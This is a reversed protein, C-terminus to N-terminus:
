YIVKIEKITGDPKIVQLTYIGHALNYNWQISETSSGNMREIQKRVIVQGLHNILRLDYRGAPLNNLHLNIVGNTIPNPYITISPKGDGILVKVTNSYEIKGDAAVCRIRYYYLGPLPKEDTWTYNSSGSNSAVVSTKSMFSVGDTSREVEYQKMNKENTVQWKVDVNGNNQEAKVSTIAFPLTVAAKFVVYFRGADKSASDTGVSFEYTTVGNMNLTTRSKTYKDILYGQAGNKDLDKAVLEFQYANSSQNTFRYFITDAKEIPRRREVILDKGGSRIYLNEANNFMKRADKGDIKNSYDESYQILNADVPKKSGDAAMRSLTTHLQMVPRSMGRFISNSSGAAKSSENFILNGTGGTTQVVFAQGSQINNNIISLNNVNHYNDDTPDLEYTIWSGYGYNGFTFSQWVTFFEDVNGTKQVKTMDIASAYPNGISTFMDAAAPTSVQYTLLDGKTRMRTNTISTKPLGTSISRDGWVYLMYGSPAYIQDGTSSIGKWDPSTLNFPSSGPVYYKMSPLMSYRDFGGGGPGTIQTGYWPHYQGNEMWSEKISQGTTPIALYEWSQGHQTAGPGVNVYREVTVLGDFNNGTNNTSDSNTLDGVRATGSANSVLTINNGTHLTVGNVNGFSLTGTINLTDNSASIPAVTANNPSSIKLNELRGSSNNYPTNFMRGAITQMARPQTPEYLEMNGNLDITGATADIAMDDDTISGAIHMTNGTIRLKAGPRMKLHNVWGNIGSSLIPWNTVNLIIVSDCTYQTPVENDSWNLANNWDQDKYGHWISKITLKGSGSNVECGGLSNTVQVGFSYGDKTDGAMINDVTLTSTISNDANTTNSVTYDNKYYSASVPQWGSGDDVQWTYNFGTSGPQTTVTFGLAGGEPCEILDSPQLTFNAQPNITVTTNGSQSNVCGKSDQVNVLVYDFTGSTSSPLTISAPDGVITQNAEGNLSYTFTYPGTGTGGTFTIVPSQSDNQCITTGGAVTATPLPNVTLTTSVNTSVPCNRGNSNNGTITIITMQKGNDASTLTVTFTANGSGDSIINDVTVPSGTGITYQITSTTNPLLGTLNMNAADGSCVPAQSITGITPNKNVWVHVDISGNDCGAVNSTLTFVNDGIVQPYATVPIGTPTPVNSGSWTYDIPQSTGPTSLGDIAWVGKGSTGSFNFRIRMNSQGLYNSLNITKSEFNTAANNTLAGTYTELTTYTAGGDTSIEIKAVDGDLLNYAQTFTLTASSQGILSFLPSELSTNYSGYVIAFKSGQNSNYTVGNFTHDQTTEFWYHKKENSSSAALPDTYVVSGNNSVIWNNQGNHQNADSSGKDFKGQEATIGTPPYLVDASLLSSGGECVVPPTATPNTPVIKPIFQLLVPNSPVGTMCVGNTVSARYITTTTIDVVSLSSSNSSTVPPTTVPVWSTGGDTSQQWSVVGTSSAGALKLTASNSVECLMTPNQTNSSQDLTLTGGIPTADVNVEVPNSSSGGCTGTVLVYYYITGEATTPPTYSSTNAGSIANGGSNSSTTNTYWQYSLTGTGTATVTLPSATSNQCYTAGVPNTVISTTPNITITFNKSTGTCGNALPTVTVTTIVPVNTSNTATFAGIDGTGSVGFGVDKSSTWSYTAGSVNSSFSVASGSSGNCYVPNTFTNTITATPNVTVTFNYSSNSCSNASATVTVTATVPVSSANTATFTPINGNGSAGFGVNSSSTWSFTEGSVPGTFSIGSGSAGNCYVVNNLTNSITPTPNVTIKFTKSTGACGNATPTVTITATVPANTSNTATFSSINDTGSTGFGIDTSCTWSYTAGAVDSTFDIAAGTSNNCYTYAVPDAFNNTITATPNVIITFTSSTGPCGNATPTVTVTTTVPASTTNKATFLSINGNGSTGFGVDVISTWSFTAGTVNSTFTVGAATNDGNCYTPNDFSNTIVPTPNVTIKFSNSTGPCSVSNNLYTPIVSINAEVADNGSNTGKFSAINGTGSGALGISANDNSWAYTITGGTQNSQFNIDATNVNNCVTQDDVHNVTAAPNVTITFDRSTGTCTAGGNTYSPTVTITATLPTTGPNKATFSSIDSNGTAALGISTTNNSWNYVTGNVTGSFSIATTTSEACVTQNTIANVDPTPNVIVTATTSNDTNCSGSKVVARFYTTTTIAGITSGPLTTSTVAIDTPSGFAPDSSSQWKVVDGVNNFLTIDGPITGTCIYQDASVTGGVSLPDVSLVGPDSIIQNCGTGEVSVVVDYSGGDGSKPNTIMLTATKTGSTNGGDDIPIGGKRWVYTPNTGNATISFSVSAANDCVEVSAPQTISILQNVTLSAPDSTIADCGTAGSVTVTYSGDDALAAHSITYTASTAGTIPTGGKNWQYTLGTGTAAVTFSADFSACVTADAPQTNISVPQNVVISYNATATESSCTATGTVTMTLTVTKGADAAVATYTPAVTTANSISGGGNSTTWLITGNTATAGSVTATGNSCITTSGGATATPLPDVTVTYDATATATSGCSNNSTVTMTLVIAKGADAAVATYTPAVTTANTISGGGNSTTWLITGNTATAGSVTATGNSCITTSGGATATPLPDVTVTYDATATATSGCSNNSTVTMTLVIAKGADAAVATYTPAVTTANSISGGGNSTTWLITGNTATAGSVTATGNSCITTSGGATATPLPDVTVTYDATAKASSGCSNNSTVTMTLVIAKGADAAVATYTPAVTTANSISGGGNSTTWLITGNTATAGSVTATGNSCITTSGGATATPLPDVTVTYDATATASSGCSNNSTVTMTLVIAKGADAAVATYTPAVTTANSISGGGNSTTWLIMGNTATAGSITATGNSCITTSGGATATPLPDVTVTYDATATASSGCSNNSTVTMTLVIAKGADAAVATYTPAVTTANSISGGGNSTTWLITGNTATAGSVTATGKSCITTSGGATATPLPEVNVTYTATAKASSGCSNNSTVTMLLIVAKGADGAVATYTPTLTTANSISGAGNSTTWLITGNAATAGSVTATGNSCITKSGGASATPLPDVTVIVQDSSIGGSCSGRPNDPTLTLTISGSSITPTYTSSLSNVDSFSGSNSPDSWTATTASGLLTGALQVSSGACINVNNGAEVAAFSNVKIKDSSAGSIGCANSAQVSYNQNQSGSQATGDVTVTISSYNSNGGTISWGVSNNPFNWIYNTSNPDNPVQFTVGTAVPCIGSSSNTTISGPTSPKSSFTTMVIQNSNVQTPAACTANSTMTVTIKSGSPLLNATYTSGTAGSINSGNNKWQYTPTGGNTPTATFTVPTSGSPASTCINTSSASISVSPVQTPNVTITKTVSKTGCSGGSTTLTLTITGSESAGATYTATSPNNANTWTGAGGTWTGGTAGGGVSGGMAASTSGQCIATLAGGATATPNENVTITKTASKTGCSGGSTTLTLTITGSESAGATYTATSPNNANTWTGAGGTWTGGTAGGGVSGGMAASTSGQCIATLAGGATATPNENVTITKTASKTGCSGGSTTLTLTITGSESAGATYTATSPNNANTWTGAGGTWTGGTAGGGVSGGMAASTSGQCIATLAGGATATPNENVTITKTASKTGCSGGSTTLTLTITGSESAGATYTATSPNNANTWTGAGGTWTGGTAGGGVSGGMAASTSGQCIATLAGGATATPNENVTITKTASKTGCSGGSTTLTLTITGSESAGATYTATSPNNANTWTGAGGTWTGGTAGGGVSGGMAASTSGQCIATLAGGATATPNENVTITKTASKTGCSGGSTTLTLTITGSESAGATYTATSPNNANTWTGAGGTWTGGTAGGGVSGGMAASTSGQCIATLAGGATATPNENVTITKTASKTGCSGGSTTLTLTITGSESAGATYTATSPNNANTWTGAGGTWTGGTAGGGVSGGMAASTGGQCIATMAGGANVTPLAYITVTVSSSTVSLPSACTANSTLIVDVKDGNKLAGSPFSFTNSNSSSGYNVANLQWQYSGANAPTATFTIPQDACFTNGADASANVTPTVTTNITISSSNSNVTSNSNVLRLKYGSGASTASPITGTVISNNADGNVATSTGITTPSAFNGANDSLQISYTNSGTAKSSFNVDVTGGPCVSTSSLSNLTISSVQAFTAGPVMGLLVVFLGLIWKPSKSKFASGNFIVSYIKRM